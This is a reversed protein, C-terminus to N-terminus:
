VGGGRGLIHGALFKGNLITGDRLTDVPNHSMENDHGCYPCVCLGIELQSMCNHCYNMLGKKDNEM